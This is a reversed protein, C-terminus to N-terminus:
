EETCNKTTIGIKLSDDISISFICIDGESIIFEGSVDTTDYIIQFNNDFSYSVGRGSWYYQGANVQKYMDNFSTFTSDYSARIEIGFIDLWTYMTDIEFADTELDIIGSAVIGMYSPSVDDDLSEKDSCNFLFLTLFIILYRNM